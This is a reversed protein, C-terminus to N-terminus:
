VALRFGITVFLVLFSIIIALIGIVMPLWWCYTEMWCAIDEIKDFFKEKWNM